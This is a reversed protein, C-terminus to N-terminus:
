PTYDNKSKPYSLCQKRDKYDTLRARKATMADDPSPSM